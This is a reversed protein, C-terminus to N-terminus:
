SFISVNTGSTTPMFGSYFGSTVSGVDCPSNFAGQVVTHNKPYFTFELVDGVAATASNPSFTLGIEGVAISITAASASSALLATAAVFSFDSRM